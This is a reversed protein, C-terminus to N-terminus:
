ELPENGVIGTRLFEEYRCRYEQKYEEVTQEFNCQRTDPKIRGRLTVKRVGPRLVLHGDEAKVPKGDAKAEALEFFWPIRVLIRKPPNRNPGTLSLILSDAAAQLKLSLPGFNTPADVAEIAKGPKLWEPSVASLLYLDEDFERVIMNRVLEITKASAAGDPLLNLTHRGNDRSSWPATGWEQPAHTSSTHLLLAYLDGVAAQQDEAKGRVLANQGNNPTQWYHIAPMETFLYGEGEVVTLGTHAIDPWDSTGQKGIAMPLVFSLMRQTLEVSAADRDGDIRIVGENLIRIEGVVVYFRDLVKVEADLIEDGEIQGCQVGGEELFLFFFLDNFTIGCLYGPELSAIDLMEGLM